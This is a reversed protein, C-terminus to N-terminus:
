KHEANDKEERIDGFSISGLIFSIVLSWVYFQNINDNLVMNGIGVYAKLLFFLCISFIAVIAQFSILITKLINHGGWKKPIVEIIASTIMTVCIYFFELFNNENNEAAKMNDIVVPPILEILLPIASIVTCCIWLWWTKFAFIIPCGKKSKAMNPHDDIGMVTSTNSENQEM